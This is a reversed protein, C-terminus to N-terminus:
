RPRSPNSTNAESFRTTYWRRFPQRPLRDSPSGLSRIRSRLSPRPASEREPWPGRNRSASVSLRRARDPAAVEVDSNRRTRVGRGGEWRTGRRGGPIRSGPHSERVERQNERGVRYASLWRGLHRYATNRGYHICHLGSSPPTQILSLSLGRYSCVVGRLWSGGVGADAEPRANM